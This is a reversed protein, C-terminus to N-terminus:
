NCAPPFPRKIEKLGGRPPDSTPASQLVCLESGFSMWRTAWFCKPPPASPSPYLPLWGTPGTLAFQYINTKGLEIPCFVSLGTQHSLESVTELRTQHKATSFSFWRIPQAASSKKRRRKFGSGSCGQWISTVKCQHALPDIDTHFNSCHVFYLLGFTFASCSVRSIWRHAETTSIYLFRFVRKAWIVLLVHSKFRLIREAALPQNSPNCESWTLPFLLFLVHAQRKLKSGYISMLEIILHDYPWITMHCAFIATILGYLICPLYQKSQTHM